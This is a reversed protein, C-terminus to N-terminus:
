QSVMAGEGLLPILQTGFGNWNLYVLNFHVIRNAYPETKLHNVDRQKLEIHARDKRKEPRMLTRRRKHSLLFCLTTISLTHGRLAPLFSMLCAFEGTGTLGELDSVEPSLGLLRHKQSVELHNQPVQSKSFWQVLAEQLKM